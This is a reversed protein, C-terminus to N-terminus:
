GTQLSSVSNKETKSWPSSFINAVFTDPSNINGLSALPGYLTVHKDGVPRGTLIKWRSFTFGSGEATTVRIRLSAKNLQIPLTVMELGICLPRDRYLPRDQALDHAWKCWSSIIGNTFTYPRLICLKQGKPGDLKRWQPRGNKTGDCGHSECTRGNKMWGFPQVFDPFLFWLGILTFDVINSCCNWGKGNKRITIIPNFHGLPFFHICSRWTIPNNFIWHMRFHCPFHVSWLFVFILIRHRYKPNWFKRTSGEHGRVFM